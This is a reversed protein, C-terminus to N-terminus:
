KCKYTFEYQQNMIEKGNDVTCEKKGKKKLYEQAATRLTIRADENGDTATASSAGMSYATGMDARVYLSSLDPRDFVVFSSGGLDIDTQQSSAYTSTFHGIGSCGTILATTVAIALIKM